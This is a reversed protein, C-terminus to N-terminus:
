NVFPSRRSTLAAPAAQPCILILSELLKLLTLLTELLARRNIDALQQCIGAQLRTLDETSFASADSSRLIAELMQPSMRLTSPQTAVSHQDPSFTSSFYNDPEPAAVRRYGETTWDRCLLFLPTFATKLIFRTM